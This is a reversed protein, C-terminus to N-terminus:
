DPPESASHHGDAPEDGLPDVWDLRPGHQGDPCTIRAPPVALWFYTALECHMRATARAAGDRVRECGRRLLFWVLRAWEIVRIIPSRYDSCMALRDRIAVSASTLASTAALAALIRIVALLDVVIAITESTSVSTPDHRVCLDRLESARKSVQASGASVLRPGPAGARDRVGELWATRGEVTLKAAKELAAAPFHVLDDLTLGAVSLTGADFAEAIRLYQNVTPQKLGVWTGVAEQTANVGAAALGERVLACLRAMEIAKLRKAGLNAMLCIAAATTDDAEIVLADIYKHGAQKASDLRREGDILEYESATLRRVIVAQVFGRASVCRTLEKMAGPAIRAQTRWATRLPTIRITDIPVRLFAQAAM